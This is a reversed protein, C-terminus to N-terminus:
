IVKILDNQGRYISNTTYLKKILGSSLLREKLVRNECHTAYLYIDKAGNEKLLKAAYYFTDGSGCIDDVILINSGKIKEACGGINLGLIEGTRWDREKIGFAYERKMFYTYRKMSGEDPYFLLLNGDDIESIVKSIYHCPSLVRVNNILAESVPSHPDLIYVVNFNLFNIIECFYKLTFVDYNEKVRDQRANPVYPLILDIIKIGKEQLHRTLFIIISLEEESDYYWSITAASSLIQKDTVNISLHYTGDPFKKPIIKENDLLIM